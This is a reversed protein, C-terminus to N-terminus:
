SAAIHEAHIKHDEHSSDFLSVNDLKLWPPWQGGVSDFMTQGEHTINAAIYILGLVGGQLKQAVRDTKSLGLAAGGGVIGGFSHVAVIVDKHEHEILPLLYNNRVYDTDNKVTAESPKEPKASPYM